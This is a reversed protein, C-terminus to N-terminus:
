KTAMFDYEYSTRVETNDYHYEIAAPLSKSTTSMCPIFIPDRAKMYRKTTPMTHLYFNTWSSKNNHAPEATMNMYTSHLIHQQILVAKCTVKGAKNYRLPHATTFIKAHWSGFLEGVRPLGPWGKRAGCPDVYTVLRM